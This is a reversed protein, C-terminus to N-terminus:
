MSFQCQAPIQEKAEHEPDTEVIKKTPLDNYHSSSRSSKTFLIKKNAQLGAIPESPMNISQFVGSNCGAEVTHADIVRGFSICTDADEESRISGSCASVSSAVKPDTM